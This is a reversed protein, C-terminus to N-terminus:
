RARLPNETEPGVVEQILAAAVRLADSAHMRIGRVERGGLTIVVEGIRGTSVELEAFACIPLAEAGRARRRAEFDITESM